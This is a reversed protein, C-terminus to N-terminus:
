AEEYLVGDRTLITTVAAHQSDHVVLVLLQEARSAGVYLVRRTEHRAGCDWNSVGEQIGGDRAKPIVLAVAPSQLGKYGHVTSYALADPNGAAPIHKWKQDKTVRLKKAIDPFRKDWGLEAIGSKIADRFEQPTAEYPSVRWALRLAGARFQRQTIRCAEFFDNDHLDAFGGASERLISEFLAMARARDQPKGNGDRIIATAQALREITTTASGLPKGAGAYRRADSGGHSLVVIQEAAFGERAALATIKKAAGAPGTIKLVYVPRPEDKYPGCPTDASDGYRLSDVVKCIAPTSRYNGDLPEGAEVLGALAGTEGPATQRFGYIEQDVDGVMVVSIGSAELFRILAVDGDNSDQFEDIIVEGFRHAFRRQLRGALVPDVLYGTMLHRAYECDVFGARTLSRWKYRAEATIGDMVDKVASMTQPRLEGPIRRRVLTAEGDAAFSFWALRLRLGAKVTSTYVRGPTTEWTDRFSPPHGRRATYIPGVIYRNIFGDITGVFNPARLLQPYDQCREHVATIAANTFSILAVGLRDGELGPRRIFREVISQTKGAGPCARVMRSGPKEILALQDPSYILGNPPPAM